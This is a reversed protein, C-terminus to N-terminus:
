RPGFHALDDARQVPCEASLLAQAPRRCPAALDSGSRRTRLPCPSADTGGRYLSLRPAASLTAKDGNSSEDLSQKSTGAEGRATPCGAGQEAVPCPADHHAVFLVKPIQAKRGVSVVNAAKEAATPGAQLWATMESSTFVPWWKAVMSHSSHWM